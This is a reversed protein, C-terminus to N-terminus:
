RSAHSHSSSSCAARGGLPELAHRRRRAVPSPASSSTRARARRRGRCARRRRRSRRRPRPRALADDRGRRQEADVSQRPGVGARRRLRACVRREIPCIPRGLALVALEVGDRSATRDGPRELASHRMSTSPRSCRGPSPRRWGTGSGCRPEEVREEQRETSGRRMLKTPLASYMSEHFVFYRKGAMPMIGISRLPRRRWGLPASSAAARTSSRPSSNPMKGSPVRLRSPVSCRPWVPAARSASRM